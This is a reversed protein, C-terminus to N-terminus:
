FILLSFLLYCSLLYISFKSIGAGRFFIRRVDRHMLTCLSGGNKKEILEVHTNWIFLLYVSERQSEAVTAAPDRKKDDNKIYKEPRIEATM